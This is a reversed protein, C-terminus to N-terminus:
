YEVLKKELDLYDISFKTFEDFKQYIHFPDSFSNQKTENDNDTLKYIEKILCKPKKNTFIMSLNFQKINVEELASEAFCYKDFDTIIKVPYSEIDFHLIFDNMNENYKILQISRGNNYTTLLNKIDRIHVNTVTSM